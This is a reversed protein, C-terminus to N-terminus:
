HSILVTHPGVTTSIEVEGDVARGDNSREGDIIVQCCQPDIRSVRFTTPQGSANPAGADTSIALQRREVDYWAQLLCVTPFDVGHVTPDIFKCLSPENYIRWWAGESGAEATM